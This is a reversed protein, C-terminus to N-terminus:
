RAGCPIRSTSTRTSRWRRASRRRGCCSAISTANRTRRSSRTTTSSAPRAGAPRRRRRRGQGPHAQRRHHQRGRPRHLSAATGGQRRSPFLPQARARVPDLAAAHDPDVARADASRPQRLPVARGEESPLGGLQPCRGGQGPRYGQRCRHAQFPVPAPLAGAPLHVPSETARAGAPIASEARGLQYRVVTDSLVEFRPGRDRM